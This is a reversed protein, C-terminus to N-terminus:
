KTGRSARIRVTRVGPTPGYILTATVAMTPRIRDFIRVSITFQLWIVQRCSSSLGIISHNFCAYCHKLTNFSIMFLQNCSQKHYLSTRSRKYMIRLPNLKRNGTRRCCKLMLMLAYVRYNVVVWWTYCPVHSFSRSYEPRPM